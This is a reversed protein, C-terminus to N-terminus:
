ALKYINNRIEQLTDIEEKYNTVSTEMAERYEKSYMEIADFLSLIEDVKMCRQTIALSLISAQERTLQLQIM